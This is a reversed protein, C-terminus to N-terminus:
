RDRLQKSMVLSECGGRDSVVAPPIETIEISEPVVGNQIPCTTRTWWPTVFFVRPYTSTSAPGGPDQVLPSSPALDFPLNLFSM